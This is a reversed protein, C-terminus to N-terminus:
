RNATTAPSTAVGGLSVWASSDQGERKVYTYGTERWPLVANRKNDLVFDGQSTRVLMVAHGQGEEDIVVTMRLARRPLGQEVLERRKVLQYDECDGRGDEAFDWRDTVGWHEQDTAAKIRANVDRNVKVILDWLKPTLTITEAEAVNVACEASYRQCFKIWAETPRAGGGKTLPASSSPLAAVTQAYSVSGVINLGAAIAAAALASFVPRRSTQVQPFNRKSLSLRM